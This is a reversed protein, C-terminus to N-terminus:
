ASWTNALARSAPGGLDWNINIAADTSTSATVTFKGADFSITAVNSVTTGSPFSRVQLSASSGGGGTDDDTCSFTGSEASWNLAKNGAGADCDTLGAGWLTGLSTSGLVALDDSIRLDGTISHSAAVGFSVVNGRVTLINAGVEFNSSISATSLSTQGTVGLTGAFTAADQVDLTGASNIILNGTTTGLTNTDLTINDFTFVGADTVTLYNTAGRRVIFDGTSNLDVLLGTSGGSLSAGSRFEWLSTVIEAANLHAVNVSLAADDVTSAAGITLTDSVEDDAWPNATNVWNGTITEAQSLSAPGGLGWDLKVIAEGVAGDTLDFHAGSFSVSSVNSNYVGGIESLEILAGGGGGGTQDTVCTFIGSGWQLKQSSTCTQLNSGFLQSSSAYGVAEFNASVSVGKTDNDLVMITDTSNTRFRLKIGSTGLTINGSENEGPYFIITPGLNFGTTDRIELYTEPSNLKAFGGNVEFNGSVSANDKHFFDGHWTTSYPGSGSSVVLNIDLTMSDIFEDFDLSNSSVGGGGGGDALCTFKGTTSNWNLTQTEDSCDSTPFASGFLASVSARGAIEFAGTVSANNGFIWFGAVTEDQSLSAPGGTGWDLNILTETSGSSTLTFKGADFNLTTTTALITAGGEETKIESTGAGADTGCSFNGTGADWNLTQSAADCDTLGAGFYASATISSSLSVSKGQFETTGLTGTINSVTYNFTVKSYDIVNRDVKDKVVNFQGVLNQFEESTPGTLRPLREDIVSNVIRRIFSESPQNSSPAVTVIPKPRPSFRFWKLIDSISAEQLINNVQKEKLADPALPLVIAVKEGFKPSPIPSAVTLPKIPRERKDSFSILIKRPQPLASLGIPRRQYFSVYASHSDDALTELNRFLSSIWYSVRSPGPAIGPLKIGERRSKEIYRALQTEDSKKFRSLKLGQLSFDGTRSISRAEDTVPQLYSSLSVLNLNIEKRTELYLFANDLSKKGSGSHPLASTGEKIAGSYKRQATVASGILGQLSDSLRNFRSFGITINRPAFLDASIHSSKAFRSNHKPFLALNLNKLRIDAFTDLGNFERSVAGVALGEKPLFNGPAMYSAISVDPEPIALEKIELLSKNRHAIPYRIPSYLPATELGSIVATYLFNAEGIVQSVVSHASKIATEIKRPGNLAKKSPGSELVASKNSDQSFVFQRVTNKSNEFFEKELSGKLLTSERPNVGYTPSADAIAPKGADSEFSDAIFALGLRAQHFTATFFERFYSPNIKADSLTVSLLQFSQSLENKRHAFQGIESAPSQIVLALDQAVDAGLTSWSVRSIDTNLGYTPYGSDPLPLSSIILVFLALFIYNLGGRFSSSLYIKSAWTKDAIHFLAISPVTIPRRPLESDAKVAIPVNRVTKITQLATLRKQEYAVRKHSELSVKTVFWRKGLRINEVKGQRALRGIHDSDYGFERALVSTAIFRKGELEVESVSNEGNPSDAAAIAATARAIPDSEPRKNNESEQGNEDQIKSGSNNSDSPNM